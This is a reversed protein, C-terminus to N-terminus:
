NQKKSNLINNVKEKQGQPGKKERKEYRQARDDRALSGTDV